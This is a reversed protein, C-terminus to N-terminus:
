YTWDAGEFSKCSKKKVQKYKQSKNRKKGIEQSNETGKKVHISDNRNWFVNIKHQQKEAWNETGNECM